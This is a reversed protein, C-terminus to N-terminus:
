DTAPLAALRAELEAQERRMGAASAVALARRWYARREAGLSAQGLLTLDHCIKDSQALAKDLQLAEALLPAADFPRGLALMAAGALRLANATEVRNGANRHRPLAAQAQRLAGAADGSELALRAGLNLLVPALTCAPGAHCAAQAEGHWRLAAAREGRGLALLARQLLGEARRAPPMGPPANDLLRALAADADLTRGQAQLTRALNLLAQALGEEDEIAQSRTAADLFLRAAGAHDGARHLEVGRLNLASAQQRAPPPAEPAAACSALLVAAALVFCRKM